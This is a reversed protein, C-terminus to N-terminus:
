AHAVGTRPAEGNRGELLRALEPAVIEISGAGLTLCLDGSRLTRALEGALEGLHPRFHVPLDKSLGAAASEVERTLWAGDVGPIPEERAPYIEAIWVEDATALIHAFEKVFDRTRSFLHPQFVVVLRAGPYGERATALAAAMETPHHAYDDVVAIGRAEGMKQFRRAVGTFDALASRIAPWEVGLARAAGAAALANRANHLGPVGLEITGRDFGDEVIRFRLPTRSSDLDVGRLQNGASFGFSRAAGSFPAAVYAAGPDDGSFLITGGERVGELFTRFASRVGNLDGYIDLHDAEINTVVAVTSSLHHFSRDYEDAEVVFLDDGELHLNGEWGRVWGGVFGTPRLGGKALIGTIMATTTTKGHTGSVAVVKGNNVWEGLARARKLVPIGRARAEAVEPHDQPVASTIVLASVGTLHSPDHGIQVPIGLEEIPRLGPGPALDCGTVKGGKRAVAEALPCMGAGGIGMFHIIGSRMFERLGSEVRGTSNTEVASM